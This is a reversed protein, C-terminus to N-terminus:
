KNNAAPEALIMITTAVPKSSESLLAADKNDKGGKKPAEQGHSLRGHHITDQHLRDIDGAYGPLKPDGKLGKLEKPTNKKPNGKGDFTAPPDKLRGRGDDPADIDLNHHERRV